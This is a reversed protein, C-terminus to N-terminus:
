KAPVRKMVGPERFLTTSGAHAKFFAQLDTTSATLVVDKDEGYLAHDLKLTGGKLAKELYEDDISWVTLTDGDRKIKFFNHMPAATTGWREGIEDRDKESVTMDLFHHDALKVLQISFELDREDKENKTIKLSYAKKEALAIIYREKPEKGNEEVPAWVGTLGDDVIVADASALPNLSPTSCGPLLSAMTLLVASLLLKM